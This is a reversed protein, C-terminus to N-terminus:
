DHLGMPQPILSSSTSCIACHLKLCYWHTCLKSLLQLRSYFRPPDFKIAGLSLLRYLNILMREWCVHQISLSLGLDQCRFCSFSTCRHIRLMLDSSGICFSFAQDLLSSVRSPRGLRTNDYSMSPRPLIPLLTLIPIPALLLVIMPFFFPASLLPIPMPIVPITWEEDM